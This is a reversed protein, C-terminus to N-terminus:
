PIVVEELDQTKEKDLPVYTIEDKDFDVDKINIVRLRSNYQTRYYYRMSTLDMATTWQTNGQIDTGPADVAGIPIDFSNLIRFSEFVADDATKLPRVTNRLAVARVFRSAPSFDGPLGVLGTGVGMPKVELDGVKIPERHQPRLGMYNSLNKLHWPFEPSNTLVGVPNDFIKLEGELYEIVVTNGSADSILHHVPPPVNGLEEYLVPAIRIKPLEERIEEITACNTLIWMPLDGADLSIERQKPDYAPYETYGPLYLVSLSLGKENVGDIYVPKHLGNIGVVGYKGEWSLGKKGDPTKSEFSMGRPTIMVSSNLDFAGWEETRAQIYSGDEARLTIGTCADSQMPTIAVTAFAAAIAVTRSLKGFRERKM